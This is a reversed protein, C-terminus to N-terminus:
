QFPVVYKQYYEESLTQAERLAQPTLSSASSDRLKIAGGRRKSTTARNAVILNFWVYAKSYDQPVGLGNFYAHGLADQARAHGQEALMTIDGIDIKRGRIKRLLFQSLKKM